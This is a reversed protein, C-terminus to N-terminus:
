DGPEGANPPVEPKAEEMVDTRLGPFARRMADRCKMPGLQLMFIELKAELVERKLAEVQEELASIQLDTLRLTQCCSTADKEFYGGNPCRCFRLPASM